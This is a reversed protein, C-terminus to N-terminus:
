PIIISCAAGSDGEFQLPKSHVELTATFGSVMLEAEVAHLQYLADDLEPSVVNQAPTAVSHM